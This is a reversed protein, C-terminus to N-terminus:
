SERFIEQRHKRTKHNELAKKINKYECINCDFSSGSHESKMSVVIDELSNVKEKIHDIEAVKM